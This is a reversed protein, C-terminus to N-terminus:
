YKLSDATFAPIEPLDSNEIKELKEVDSNEAQSPTPTFNTAVFPYQSRRESFEKEIGLQEIIKIPHEFELAPSHYLINEATAIKKSDSTLGSKELEDFVGFLAENSKFSRDLSFSQIQPDLGRCSKFFSSQAETWATLLGALKESAAKILADLETRSAQYEDHIEVVKLAQQKTTEVAQERNSRAVAASIQNQLEDKKETLTGTARDLLNLKFEEAQFDDLSLDGDIFKQEAAKAEASQEERQTMVESLRRDIQRLDSQLNEINNM